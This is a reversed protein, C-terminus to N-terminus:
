PADQWNWDLVLVEVSDPVLVNGVMVFTYSHNAAFEFDQLMAYVEANTEKFTLTQVGAPVNQNRTALVYDVGDALTANNAGLVTLLRMNWAAHIFRARARDAAIMQHDDQYTLLRLGSEGMLVATLPATSSLSLTQPALLPTSSGPQEGMRYVSVSYSGPEFRTYATSDTYELGGFVLEDDFYVDLAPVVRGAHVFRMLGDQPIIQEFILVRPNQEGYVLLTILNGAVANVATSLRSAGSEAELLNMQYVGGPVDARTAEGKAAAAILTDGNQGQAALAPLTDALHVLEIRARNSAVSRYDYVHPLIVVAGELETAILLVRQGAVFDLDLTALPEVAGPVANRPYLAFTQTGSEIVARETTVSALPVDFYAVGDNRYLDVGDQGQLLNIFQFVPSGEAQYAALPRAFLVSFVVILLFSVYKM